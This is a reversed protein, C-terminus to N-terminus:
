IHILSLFPVSFDAGNTALFTYCGRGRDVAISHGHCIFQIQWAQSLPLLSNETDDRVAVVGAEIEQHSHEIRAGM